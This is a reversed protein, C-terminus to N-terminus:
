VSLPSPIPSLSHLLPLLFVQFRLRIGTWGLPPNSPHQAQLHNGITKHRKQRPSDGSGSRRSDIHFEDIGDGSALLSVWFSLKRNALPSPSFTFLKLPAFFFIINARTVKRFEGKTRGLNHSVVPNDLNPRWPGKNVSQAIEGVWSQGVNQFLGSTSTYLAMLSEYHSKPIDISRCNRM